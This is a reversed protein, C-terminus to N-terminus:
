CSLRYASMTGVQSHGQIEGCSSGSDVFFSAGFSCLPEIPQAEGRRSKLEGSEVMVPLSSESARAMGRWIM